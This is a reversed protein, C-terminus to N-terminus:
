SIAYAAVDLSQAVGSATGRVQLQTGAALNCFIPGFNTTSPMAEGTTTQKWFNPGIRNSNEGVELIYFISNYATIAGGQFGMQIAGTRYPLTSGFNTWASYAGSSGATFATGSSSAPTTGIATVVQGCWWNAPNRPGGRACIVIRGGITATNATRARAGISCGAPLWIPFHYTSVSAIGLNPTTGAVLDSILPTTAWSSGGAPDILIDILTRSNVASGNYAWPIITLYEVDHTLATLLAVSSGLANSAGATVATGPTTSPTGTLNTSCYAWNPGGPVILSM